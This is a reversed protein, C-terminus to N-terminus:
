RAIAPLDHKGTVEEPDFPGLGFNNEAAYGSLWKRAAREGRAKFDITWTKANPDDLAFLTGRFMKM